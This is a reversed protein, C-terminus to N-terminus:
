VHIWTHHRWTGINKLDASEHCLLLLHTVIIEGMKPWVSFFEAFSWPLSCAFAGGEEEGLPSGERRRLFPPVITRGIAGRQARRQASRASQEALAAAMIFVPPPLMRPTRVSTLSQCIMYNPQTTHPQLLRVEILKYHATPLVQGWDPRLAGYASEKSNQSRCTSVLFLYENALLRCLELGDAKHRNSHNIGAAM